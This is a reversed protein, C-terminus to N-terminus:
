PKAKEARPGTYNVTDGDRMHYTCSDIFDEMADIVKNAAVLAAKLSRVMEILEDRNATRTALAAEADKACTEMARFDAKWKREEAEAQEARLEMLDGHENAERLAAEAESAVKRLAASTAKEDRLRLRWEDIDEECATVLRKCDAAHAEAKDARIKEHKCERQMRDFNDKVLRNEAELEAIRAKDRVRRKKCENFWAVAEAYNEPESM